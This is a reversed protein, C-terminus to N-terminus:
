RGQHRMSARLPELVDRADIGCLGSAWLPNFEVPAWGRGAMRGVDLVCACSVGRAIEEALAVAERLERPDCPWEGDVEALEGGRMYISAGAVRGGSVVTRFEVEFTVPESVLVKENLLDHTWTGSSEDVLHRTAKELDSASAYVAARFTKEKTPKVFLPFASADGLLVDPLTTCLVRRGVVPAPLTALIDEPAELLDLGCPEAMTTAFLSEGYLVLEGEPEPCVRRAYEHPQMRYVDWGAGIAARWMRQSDPTHRPSLILRPM